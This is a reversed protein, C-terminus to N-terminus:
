INKPPSTLSKKYVVFIVLTILIIPLTITNLNIWGTGFLVSAAFFTALLQSIVVIFDSVGQAKFRESHEYSRSLLVTSSIFLFNWGAGLMVLSIWFLPLSHANIALIVSTFFSLIGTVLVKFVGFKEILIGTFLSPLFMAVIHSQIIFATQDFHFHIVKSLHLPTATMIFVMVGYAVSAAIVALFFSPQIIISKLSREHGRIEQKQPTPNKFLLLMVAAIVFLVSLSIFSGTYLPLSFLDKTHKAIEPGLFGAVIGALLVLGVAKGTLHKQVSEVAAFRYQQVFAGHTGLLFTSLCFLFFNHHTIALAALFTSCASTIASLIFGNKRGIKKMLLPAPITFVALGAVMLTIPLTALSTSPALDAGILGGLLVVLTTASMGIIQSLCLLYINRPLNLLNGFM